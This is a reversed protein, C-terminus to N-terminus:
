ESQNSRTDRYHTETPKGIPKRNGGIYCIQRYRSHSLKDDIIIFINSVSFTCKGSM